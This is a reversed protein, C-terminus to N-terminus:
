LAVNTRLSLAEREIEPYLKAQQWLSCQVKFKNKNCCSFSLEPNQQTDHTEIEYNSDCIELYM